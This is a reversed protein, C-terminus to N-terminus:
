HTDYISKLTQTEHISQQRRAALLKASNCFSRTFEYKDRMAAHLQALRKLRGDDTMELQGNTLLNQLDSLDANCAALVSAEVKAIYDQEDATLGSFSQNFSGNIATQWNLIDSVQGSNRVPGSVQKLSKYYATHANLEATNIDRIGSLGNRIV